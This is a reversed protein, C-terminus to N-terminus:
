GYWSPDQGDQSDQDGYYSIDNIDSQKYEATFATYYNLGFFDSSGRVMM